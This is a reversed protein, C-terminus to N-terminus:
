ICIKEFLLFPILCFNHTGGHSGEWEGGFLLGARNSDAFKEVLFLQLSKTNFVKRREDQPEFMETTLMTMPRWPDWQNYRGVWWEHKNERSPIMWLLIDELVFSEIDLRQGNRNTLKISEYNRIRKLFITSNEPPGFSFFLLLCGIQAVSRYSVQLIMGSLLHDIVMTITLGLHPPPVGELHGLHSICPPSGLWKCTSPHDLYFVEDEWGRWGRISFKM